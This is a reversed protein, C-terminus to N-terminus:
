LAVGVGLQAAIWAGRQEALATGDDVNGRVPVIVLGAEVGLFPAVFGGFEAGLRLPLAAGVWPATLSRGENPAEADAALTLWGARVGLGASPRLAGWRARLLPGIFGSLVSWRVTALELSKEGREFRTDLLLSWSPSLGLATGLSGGWLMAKPEGELAVSGAVFLESGRRARAPHSPPSRDSKEGDAAVESRPSELTTRAREAQAVLETAALAILRERAARATEALEVRVEVPYRSGSSRTLEIVVESGQCGLRLLASVGSLELTRLELELHERLTAESLGPCDHLELHLASPAAQAPAAWGLVL